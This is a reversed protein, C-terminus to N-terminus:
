LIIEDKKVNLLMISVTSSGGWPAPEIKYGWAIYNDTLSLGWHKDFSSRPTKLRHNVKLPYGKEVECSQTSNNNINKTKNNLNDKKNNFNSENSINNKDQNATNINNKSPKTHGDGCNSCSIFTFLLIFLFLLKYLKFKM